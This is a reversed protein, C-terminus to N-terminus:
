SRTEDLSNLKLIRKYKKNCALNEKILIFMSMNNDFTWKEMQPSKSRPEKVKIFLYKNPYPQKIVYLNNGEFIFFKVFRDDVFLNLDGIGRSISYPVWGMKTLLDTNMIDSNM